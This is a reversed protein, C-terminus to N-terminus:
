KKIKKRSTWLKTIQLWLCSVSLWMKGWTPIATVGGHDHIWKRGKEMAGDEGGDIKEGLLRLAIYCLATSFM